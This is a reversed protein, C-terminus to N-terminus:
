MNCMNGLSLESISPNILLGIVNSSIQISLENPIIFDM